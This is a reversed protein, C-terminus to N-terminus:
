PDRIRQQCFTGANVLFVTVKHFNNCSQVFYVLYILITKRRLFTLPSLPSLYVHAVQPLHTRRRKWLLLDTFLVGNGETGSPLPHSPTMLVSM